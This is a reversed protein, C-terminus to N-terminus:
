ELPQIKKPQQKAQCLNWDEMLEQRHELAWEVTMNLARKLLSGVILELTRIDIQAEYEGYLVHFHPPAHERWFMQIVIGFFQSITPM